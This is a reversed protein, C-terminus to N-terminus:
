GYINKDGMLCNADSLIFSAECDGRLNTSVSFYTNALSTSYSGDGAPCDVKQWSGYDVADVCDGSLLCPDPGTSNQESWQAESIATGDVFGTCDDPTFTQLNAFPDFEPARPIAIPYVPKIYGIETVSRAYLSSGYGDTDKDYYIEVYNLYISGSACRTGSYNVYTTASVAGTDPDVKRYAQCSQCESFNEGAPTPSVTEWGVVCPTDPPLECCNTPHPSGDPQTPTGLNNIGGPSSGGYGWVSYGPVRTGGGCDINALGPYKESCSLGTYNNDKVGCVYSFGPHGAYVEGM